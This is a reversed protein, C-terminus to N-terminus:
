LLVEPRPEAGLTPVDKPTQSRHAVRRRRAHPFSDNRALSVWRPFGNRLRLRDGDM